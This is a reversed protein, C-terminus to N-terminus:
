PAGCALWQSLMEREAQSPADGDPPMITNTADPGSGAMEDIHEAFTQIEARTDFNHDDPAGERDAGTVTSSHCRLCYSDMFTRGFNEYSLQSDTPCIAGTPEGTEAHDSCGAVLLPLALVLLWRPLSRPM